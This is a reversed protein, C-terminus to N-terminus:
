DVTHAYVSPPAILASRALRALPGLAGDALKRTSTSGRAWIRISPDIARSRGPSTILDMPTLGRRRMIERLRQDRKPAPMEIRRMGAREFFPCLAGMAAIAETCPTMPERLYNRVLDSAIGLGRWRPDIIVRSITRLQANLREARQRMTGSCFRGPWAVPRWSGNLTPHSIVLVGILEATAHDQARMIKATTAPPGAHYHFRALQEYDARTGPRICVPRASTADISRFRRLLPEPTRRIEPM